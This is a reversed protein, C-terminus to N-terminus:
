RRVREMATELSNDSVATYIETTSISSHGLLRQTHRLDLGARLYHTAASHRIMHPTVHQTLNAGKAHRALHVRVAQPSLPIARASILLAHVGQGRTAVFHQRFLIYDRLMQRLGEDVIPVWRERNGKGAIRVGRYEENLLSELRLSCLESVRIATAYLLELAILGSFRDFRLPDALMRGTLVAGNADTIGAGAAKRLKDLDSVDLARPLRKPLRLRLDLRHFPTIEVGGELEAWKFFSKLCAIRRRVSAPALEKVGTLFALFGRIHGRDVSGIARHGGYWREFEQLDIAYARLSHQSLNKAVRCHLLYEATWANLCRAVRNTM